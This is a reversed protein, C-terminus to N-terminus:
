DNLSKLSEVIQITSDNLSKWLDNLSKSITSDNLSKRITWRFDNISWCLITLREAIQTQWNEAKLFREVIQGRITLREVIEHRITWRNSRNWWISWCFRDVNFISGGFRYPPPYSKLADHTPGLSWCKKFTRLIELFKMFTWLSEHFTARASRRAFM